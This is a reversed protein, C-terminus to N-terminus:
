ACVGLPGLDTNMGVPFPLRMNDEPKKETVYSHVELRSCKRLISNSYFIPARNQRVRQLGM